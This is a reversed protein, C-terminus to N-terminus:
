NNFWLFDSFKYNIETNEYKKMIYDMYSNIFEQREYSIAGKAPVRYLSTTDKFYHFDYKFSFRIWLDWDELADMDEDFGGCKKYVDKKFMVTQIPFLNSRYLNLKSYEGSHVINIAEITYKYPVKSDVTIATEFATDYVIDYKNKEAFTVLREVHEPYFLDDDDLFNLYKGKALDLAINGVKSRGVNKGTSKYVINLDKFENKIMEEATNPGDEVVVVEINKYTQNRLSVLNERLTDPRGCTRVIISVLPGNKLVPLQNLDLFPNIKAAEYDLLNHFKPKFDGVTSHSHKYIRAYIYKFFMKFYEKRLKKKVHIYEEDSLIFGAHNKYIAKIVLYQGKLFNKFSGYKARVYLNNIYGYIFATLKFENPESYSYHIIDINPLYKIKYGMQRVRYSIEVDECYMFMNNDFGRIAEFLKRKFIMCAGSAWSTYGTYPDYFKPHEYPTQKLEFIGINKDAKLVEEEIKKLTDKKLETDTNLFLLYESNGSFAAMNNGYGFGKNKRGKTIKFEKFEKGYEKKLLELEKVTDDTSANDFYLLSVKNKLDFDSKLISEINGRLWKGSNYTVFVIDIKM